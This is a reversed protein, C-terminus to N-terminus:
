GLGPDVNPATGSAFASLTIYSTSVITSGGSDTSIEITYDAAVSASVGPVGTATVVINLNSTVNQWGSSATAAYANAPTGSLSTRTWRIWFLRGRSTATPACWNGNLGLNNNVYSINFTGDTVFTLTVGAGYQDPPSNNDTYGSGSYECPYTVKALGYFHTPMICSENSARNALLLVSATRLTLPASVGLEAAISRQPSTSGGVLNISGSAAMTM